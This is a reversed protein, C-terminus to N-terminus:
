FVGGGGCVACCCAGSGYAGSGYAGSGYGGSGHAGRGYGGGGYTGGCAGGGGPFLLVGRLVGGCVFVGPFVFAGVAGVPCPGTAGSPGEHRLACLRSSPALGVGRSSRRVYVGQDFHGDGPLLPVDSEGLGALLCGTWRPSWM